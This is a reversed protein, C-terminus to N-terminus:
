TTALLLSLAGDANCYWAAAAAPGDPDAGEDRIALPSRRTSTDAPLWNKVRTANPAFHPANLGGPLPATNPALTTVLLSGVLLTTVALVPAIERKSAFLPARFIDAM